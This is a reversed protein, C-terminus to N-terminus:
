KSNAKNIEEMSQIISNRFGLSELKMVGQITSGGSTTIQDKLMGPHLETDIVMKGAGRIAQAALRYAQNRPFGVSVAKDAMAEIMMFVYAPSSGTLSPAYKILSEDVWEVLAITSFLETLISREEETVHKNGTMIMVGEQSSVAINPMNRVVKYGPLTTGLEELSVDAAISVYLADAKTYHQIQKFSDLVQSSSVGNIIIDCAHLRSYDTDIEIGKGKNFLELKKLNRGVVIISDKMEPYILLGRVIHDVMKGAGIFGIKKNM